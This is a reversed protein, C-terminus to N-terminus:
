LSTALIIGKETSYNQSIVYSNKLKLGKAIKGTYYVDRPTGTEKIELATEKDLVFDIEVNDKRYYDVRFNPRLTQFIAQELLQGSSLQGLINALGTDGFYLKQNGAAQIRLNKSFRDVLTIFYTKELFSLYNYITERATGLERSLTTIDIQGSVREALLLILDRLKSVDGFDGINKVDKEFYSTFVGRMLQKKREPDTELVVAPLGGFNVYEKFQPLLIKYFVEDKNKEKNKWGEIEERKQNKFILFESFTLPFLEFILKRGSMSESFLNRLYYSSSGSFFFKTQFHDIFYKAVRPIISLNQIEDLFIYARENKNLGLLSLGAWIGNFNDTDFLKQNLPDELDLFIKNKSKIQDFLYHLITTKGSQRMGTLVMAERTELEKDLLNLIKRRYFM